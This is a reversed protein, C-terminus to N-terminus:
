AWATGSFCSSASSFASSPIRLLPYCLGQRWDFLEGKRPEPGVGDLYNSLKYQRVCSAGTGGGLFLFLLLGAVGVVVSIVIFLVVWIVMAVGFLKFFDYANRIKKRRRGM